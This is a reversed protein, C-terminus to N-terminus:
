RHQDVRIGPQWENVAAAVHALHLGIPRDLHLVPAVAKTSVQGALAHRQRHGGSLPAQEDIVAVGGDLL